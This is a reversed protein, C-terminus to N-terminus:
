RNVNSMYSDIISRYMGSKKIKKLGRNFADRHEKKLFAAKYLSEPFLKHLNVPQNDSPDKLRSRYYTFIKLDIIIVDTQHKFLQEVQQYQDLIENYNENHLTMKHYADGLSLHSKQFGVVSYSGLDEIDKVDIQESKVTIGVNRYSIYNNSLYTGKVEPYQSQITLVGDITNHSLAQQALHLPQYTFEVEYGEQALSAKVIDAEFGTDQDQIIYPEV